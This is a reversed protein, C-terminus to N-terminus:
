IMKLLNRYGEYENKWDAYCATLGCEPCRCGLYLWRVDESNPYLSVGATIEFIGQGCPCECEELEADDLYDASDGIPHEKTCSNCVRIAAGEVDDVFLRFLNHGCSCAANQFHEALYGRRSHKALAISIDSQSEGYHHAGRKKLAM